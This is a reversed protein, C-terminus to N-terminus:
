LEIMVSNRIILLYRFIRETATPQMNSPFLRLGGITHQEPLHSFVVSLTFVSLQQIKCTPADRLLYAIFPQSNNGVSPSKSWEKNQYENTNEPTPKFKNTQFEWTTPKRWIKWHYQHTAYTGHTSYARRNMVRYYKVLLSKRIESPQVTEQLRRNTQQLTWATEGASNVFEQM